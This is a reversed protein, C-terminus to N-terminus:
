SELLHVPGKLIKVNSRDATQGCPPAPGCGDNDGPERACDPPAACRRSDTPSPEPTLWPSAAPIAKPHHRPSQGTAPTSITWTPVGPPPTPAPRCRSGWAPCSTPPLPGATSRSIPCPPGALGPSVDARQPPGQHVFPQIQWSSRPCLGTRRPPPAPPSVSSGDFVPNAKSISPGQLAAVQPGLKRSSAKPVDKRSPNAASPICRAPRERRCWPQGSSGAQVLRILSEPTGAFGPQSVTLAPGHLLAAIFQRPIGPPLYRHCLSALTGAAVEAGLPIWQAM